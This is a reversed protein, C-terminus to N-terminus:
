RASRATQSEDSKWASAQCAMTKNFRGSSSQLVVDGAIAEEELEEGRRRWDVFWTLLSLSAADSKAKVRFSREMAEGALDGPEDERGEVEEAILGLILRDGLTALLRPAGRLGRFPGDLALPRSDREAM